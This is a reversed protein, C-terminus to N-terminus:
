WHVIFRLLDPRRCHGQKPVCVLVQAGEQILREARTRATDVSTETDANMLEIDVGYMSKLVAPALDAGKQCSQGIFGQVGSRPLLVGVKLRNAQARVYAPAVTSATAGALALNFRRRSIASPM